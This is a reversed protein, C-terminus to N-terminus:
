RIFLSSGIFGNDFLQLSIKIVCPAFLVFWPVTHEAHPSIPLVEDKETEPIVLPRVLLGQFDITVGGAFERM